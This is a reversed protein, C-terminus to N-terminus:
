ALYQLIGYILITAVIYLLFVMFAGKWGINRMQVYLLVVGVLLWGILFLGLGVDQLTPFSEEQPPGNHMLNDLFERDEVQSKEQYTQLEKELLQKQKTLESNKQQIDERITRGGSFDHLANASLMLNNYTARITTLNDAFSQTFGSLFNNQRITDRNSACQNNFDPLSTNLQNNRICEVNGVNQKVM